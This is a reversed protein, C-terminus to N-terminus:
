TEPVPAAAPLRVLKFRGASAVIAAGPPLHEALATFDCTLLWPFGGRVAADLSVLRREDLTADPPRKRDAQRIAADLPGIIRIPQQDSNAFLRGAAGHDTILLPGFMQCRRLGADRPPSVAITEVLVHRPLAAAVQDFDAKDRAYGTWDAAIAVLRLGVLAGLGAVALRDTQGAPPRWCLAGVALMAFFLPMRDAVAGVGFMAPPVILVLLAALALAPWALPVVALRGRRMLLLILALAVALTVADFLL